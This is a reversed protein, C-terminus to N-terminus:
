PIRPSERHAVGGTMARLGGFGAGGATGGLIGTALSPAQALLLTALLAFTVMTGFLLVDAHLAEIPTLMFSETYHLQALGSMPALLGATLQLLFAVVLKLMCAGLLFRLWGEFLWALPKFMLFPVMIPAFALALQVSIFGMIIHAAMVIGAALLLFATLLKAIISYIMSGLSASMSTLMGLLTPTGSGSGSEVRPQDIVATIAKFIPQMGADLAQPLTALSGGTIISGISDMTTVILDGVSKDLFLTVVGFAVFIPTWESFIDTLGRGSAMTKLLTWIMLAVLFFATLYKGTANLGTNNRLDTLKSNVATSIDNVMRNLSFGSYNAPTATSVNPTPTSAGQGVAVTCALALVVLMLKARNRREVLVAKRALLYAVLWEAAAGIADAFQDRAEVRGFTM